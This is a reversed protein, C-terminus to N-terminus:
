FLGPIKPLNLEGTLKSMATQSLDRSKNLGSNITSVLLDQLLSANDPTLYKPAIELSVIEQHGNVVLSIVDGSSVVIRENKLQEQVNDVNQQLKKVIEMMNGLNEWM